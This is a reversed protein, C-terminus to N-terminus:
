GDAALEFHFVDINEAIRERKTSWHIVSRGQQLCWRLLVQAPRKGRAELYARVGAASSSM